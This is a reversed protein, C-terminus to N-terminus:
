RRPCPNQPDFTRWDYRSQRIKRAVAFPDSDYKEKLFRPMARALVEQAINLGAINDDAYHVGQSLPPLPSHPTFIFYILYYTMSGITHRTVM